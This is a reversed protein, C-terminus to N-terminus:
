RQYVLRYEVKIEDGTKITGMLAVPPVVGFDSMKLNLVGSIEMKGNGASSVQFDDTVQNTKGAITLAMKAKGSHQDGEVQLLRAEITPYSKQKLAEYAKKDMMNHESKLSGSELVFNGSSLKNLEGDATLVFAGSMKEGKMEWEHLTSTGKVLVSSGGQVLKYQVQATAVHFSAALVITIVSWGFAKMLRKM